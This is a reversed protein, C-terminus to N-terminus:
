VGGARLRDLFPGFGDNGLWFQLMNTVGNGTRTAGSIGDVEYPNTAQGRVVSIRIDGNEDALLKGPWLARWDPNEVRAGIGPTEGHEFVTLGAITIGDPKLALYAYLMSQYGVGRVPLVVLELVGKRRLIYVPAFDARQKIGAVDVESLLTTSTKPDKAAARQDFEAPDIGPVFAGTKLDIIQVDLGDTGAEALLDAMGPLLSVMRAMQEQREAKLNAEYYPKLLVASLSVFVSAILAVLFAFAFTKTLNDNPLALFRKWWVFPNLNAM